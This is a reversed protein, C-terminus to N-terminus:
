ETCKYRAPVSVSMVPGDRDNRTEKNKGEVKRVNNDEVNGDEAEGMM